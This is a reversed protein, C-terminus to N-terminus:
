ALNEIVVVPVFDPDLWKFDRGNCTIIAAGAACATAALWLDNQRFERYRGRERAACYLIVYAAVIDPDGADLRNLNLLLEELRQLKPAGWGNFRALSRVEAEVVSSLIPADPLSMLSHEANIAQGTTDGRALHVLVDTDLAVLGGRARM